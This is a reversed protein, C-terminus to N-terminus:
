QEDEEVDEVEDKLQLLLVSLVSSVVFDIRSYKASLMDAFLSFSSVPGGVSAKTEDMDKAWIDRPKPPPRSAPQSQSSHPGAELM